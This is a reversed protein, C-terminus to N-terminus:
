TQDILGTKPSSPRKPVDIDMVDMLVGSCPYESTSEAEPHYGGAPVKLNEEATEPSSELIKLKVTRGSPLKSM